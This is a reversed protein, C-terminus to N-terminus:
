ACRFFTPQRLSDCRPEWLGTQVYGGPPSRKACASLILPQKLYLHPDRRSGLSGDGCTPPELVLLHVPRNEFNGIRDASRSVAEDFTAAPPDAPLMDFHQQGNCATTGSSESTVEVLAGVTPM